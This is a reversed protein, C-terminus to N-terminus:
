NGEKIQGRHLAEQDIKKSFPSFPTLPFSMAPSQVQQQLTCVIEFNGKPHSNFFIANYLSSTGSLTVHLAKEKCGFLCRDMVLKLNQIM